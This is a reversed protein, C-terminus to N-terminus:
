RLPHSENVTSKTLRADDMNAGANLLARKEARQALALSGAASAASLVTISSVVGGALLIWPRGGTDGLLFPLCGILAGAVAGWGATRKVSLENLKRRRGAIGLVISFTVGSLFGPIAGVMWWMEDMADTPDIIRTGILIALPAWVLAWIVGMGIAGRARKLWHNM